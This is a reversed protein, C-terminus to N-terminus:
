KPGGVTIDPLDITKGPEATFEHGRFRYPAGPIMNVFTVRGDPGTSLNGHHESDLNVQMEMDANTKGMTGWDASPTILLIMFDPSEDAPHNVLPKGEADKLRVRVSGCEQLRVTVPGAAASKGSIEVTAGLRHKADLFYYPLSKEPDCGPVEFRGDRVQIRPVSGPVFHVFAHGFEDYPTYARSIAFAEAIPAGDPGIVRGQITMGLRLRMTVEQSATGPKIDLHALADPYLPMDPLWGTGMEGHSTPVNIYDDSPGQVLLHGPGYDVVLTFTGDPGSSTDRNYSYAYLPNNRHTQFYSVRAGAVGKGSPEEILRGHVVAGRRLRVEVAQQVAGKPWDLSSERRLYPEGERPYATISFSDGPWPAIRVRGQDDATAGASEGWPDPLQGEARVSVWAGAMPKGDDDRVVRVDIAQVPILAITKPKGRWEDGPAIKIAQHAFRLDEVELSIAARAGLGTLRFRGARDTTAPGPWLTPGGKTAYPDYTRHRIKLSSVRVSVGAAPQNQVDVLRGEVVKEPDLMITTEQSKADFRLDNGEVAYGPAAAIISLATPRAPPSTTFEVRFRGDAGATTMGALQRSEFSGVDGIQKFREAIVAVRAGPIPRTRDDVVLGTVTRRPEAPAADNPAAAPAQDRAPTAAAVRVGMRVVALPLILGAMAILGLVVSPRNVGRRPCGADLISLLRGELHSPRAMALAAFLVLTSKAAVDLALATTPRSLVDFITDM